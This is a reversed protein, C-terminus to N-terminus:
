KVEYTLKGKGYVGEWDSVFKDVSWDTLPHSLLGDMIDANVTVSHGGALAVEHVQQVNKFSAALVKTNLNYIKFLEVIEKVVNVGNGSINDIRNVYPAVFDAGAVAAMLAQDATFVATATIKIGKSKLIKMAKIGEPIVPVKIYINGGITNTIYEAEKVIEDANKSVAQVHLMKDQGIIERIQNLIDLFSRKEKSIITPNTTVGSMPYLDFARKIQDLNATDLLYLM